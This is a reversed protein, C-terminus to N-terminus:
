TKFHKKELYKLDQEVRKRLPSNKFHEEGAKAKKLFAKYIKKAIEIDKLEADKEYIKGLLYYADDITESKPYSKILRVATEMAQAGKQIDLYLRASNLLSKAAIEKDPYRSYVNQYFEIAKVAEGKLMHCEGTHYMAAPYEGSDERIATFEALAKDYRHLNIHIKGIWIRSVDRYQSQPFKALLENFVKLSHAFMGNHYFQIGTKMLAEDASTTTFTKEKKEGKETKPSKDPAAEPTEKKQASDTKVASDKKDKVDAATKAKDDKAASQDKRESTKAPGENLISDIIEKQERYDKAYLALPVLLAYIL